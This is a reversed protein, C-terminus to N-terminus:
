PLSPRFHPPTISLLRGKGKLEEAMKGARAPDEFFGYVSSGSGSMSAFLAGRDLMTQKLAGIEPHERFVAPEFDNRLVRALLAPNGIFELVCQKMAAADAIASPTVQGYAWATSVHIGPNCLLIAYPIDLDMYELIEGRGRAFASGPSLFFPVDSGLRLALESMIGPGPSSGWFRPLSTLVAAADSSGGGLGAGVPIQKSLRIRVGAASGLHERLLLAAKLCINGDDRPVDPSDTSISLTDSPELAIQDFLNVRHFITAIDHYGDPRRNLVLLGLNIKAYARFMRHCLVSNGRSFTSSAPCGPHDKITSPIKNNKM